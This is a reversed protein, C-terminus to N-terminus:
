LAPLYFCSVTLTPIRLSRYLAKTIYFRGTSTGIDGRRWVHSDATLLGAKHMDVLVDRAVPGQKCMQADMYFWAESGLHALQQQLLALAPVQALFQWGDIGERWCYTEGNIHGAALFWAIDTGSVPGRQAKRSDFFFWAVADMGADRQDAM